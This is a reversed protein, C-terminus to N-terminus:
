PQGDGTAGQRRYYELVSSPLPCPRPDGQWVGNGLAAAMSREVPLHGPVGQGGPVEVSYWMDGFGMDVDGWFVGSHQSIDIGNQYIGIDNGQHGGNSGYNHYGEHYGHGASEEDMGEGAGEYDDEDEEDDDDSSGDEDEDEDEDEDTSGNKDEDSSGDDDEDEDDSDDDGDGDEIGNDGDRGGHYHDNNGDGPAGGEGYSDIDINGQGLAVPNSDGAEDEREYVRADGYRDVWGYGVENAAEYYDGPGVEDEGKGVISGCGGENSDGSIGDAGGGEQGGNHDHSDELDGASGEVYLRRWKYYQHRLSDTSRTPLPFRKPFKVTIPGWNRPGMQRRLVAIYRIEDYRYTAQRQPKGKACRIM